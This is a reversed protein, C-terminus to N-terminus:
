YGKTKDVVNRLPQGAIYRGLNDAILAYHREWLKGAVGGLHPSILLNPQTWLPSEPPLPETAAVDLAAGAIRRGQLAEILAAEDVLAGRSVNLLYADPKMKAFRDRNFLAVTGPTTPAAIVVFDARPLLCDLEAPRHVEDGGEAGKDVSERVVIVKMGFAKARPILNRGISGAGIVLLTAGDLERPLAAGESMIGQAWVRQEQYRVAMPIQRALALVLAMTHEAVVLGHITRGNTVVVDSAVIEPLLLHHVATSPSHIWRLRGARRFQEPRLSAGAFIETDGIEKDMGDYGPLQVVEIAPFEARLREGVWSPANWLRYRHPHVLLLKTKAQDTM